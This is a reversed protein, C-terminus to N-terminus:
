PDPGRFLGTIVYNYGMDNKHCSNTLFMAWAVAPRCPPRPRRIATTKPKFRATQGSIRPVRPRTIRDKPCQYCAINDIRTRTEYDHQLQKACFIPACGHRNTRWGTCSMCNIPARVSHRHIQPPRQADINQQWISRIPASRDLDVARENVENGNMPYRPVLDV